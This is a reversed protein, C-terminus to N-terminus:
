FPLALDPRLALLQTRFDAKIRALAEPSDADFRM